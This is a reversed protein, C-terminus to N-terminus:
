PAPPSAEVLPTVGAVEVTDGRLVVEQTPEFMAVQGLAQAHAESSRLYAILDAMAFLIRGQNAGARAEFLYGHGPEADPDHIGGEAFALAAQRVTTWSQFSRGEAATKALGAQADIEAPVNVGRWLPAEPDLRPPGVIRAIRELDEALAADSHTRGPLPIAEGMLWACLSDVLRRVEEPPTELGESTWLIRDSGQTTAVDTKYTLPGEVGIRRLMALAERVSSEGSSECYVCILHHGLIEDLKKDSVKFAPFRGRAVAEWITDRIGHPDGFPVPVLWKGTADREDPVNVRSMFPRSRITSQWM